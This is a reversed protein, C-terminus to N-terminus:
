FAHYVTACLRLVCVCVRACVCECVRACVCECVCVCVCVFVFVFVCVFVCVSVCWAGTATIHLQARTSSAPRGMSAEQDVVEEGGAHV